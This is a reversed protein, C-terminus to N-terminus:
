NTTSSLYPHKDALSDAYSYPHPHRYCLSCVYWGSLRNIYM